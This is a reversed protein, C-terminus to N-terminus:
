APRPARHISRAWAWSARFCTLHRPRRTSAWRASRKAWREAPTSYGLRLNPFSERLMWHVLRSRVHPPLKRADERTIPFERLM